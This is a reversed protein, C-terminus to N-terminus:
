MNGTDIRMTTDDLEGQFGPVYGIVAFETAPHTQQSQEQQCKCGQIVFLLRRM